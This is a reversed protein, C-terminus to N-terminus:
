SLTANNESPFWGGVWGAVGSGINEAEENRGRKIGIKEWDWEM